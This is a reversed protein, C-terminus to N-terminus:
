GAPAAEPGVQGLIEAALWRVKAAQWDSSDEQLLAVLVPLAAPGGEKLQNLAELHTRPAPDRLAKRWYPTPKGQFFSDRKLLGQLICHPDLYLAGVVVTVLIGTGILWRKRMGGREAAAPKMRALPPQSAGSPPMLPRVAGARRNPFRKKTTCVTYCRRAASRCRCSPGSIFAPVDRATRLRPLRPSWVRSPRLTPPWMSHGVSRDARRKWVASGAAVLSSMSIATWCPRARSLRAAWRMSGTCGVRRAISATVSATAHALIFMGRMSRPGSLFAT